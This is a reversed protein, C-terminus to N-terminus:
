GNYKVVQGNLLFFDGMNIQGADIAQEVEADNGFQPIENPRMGLAAIVELTRASLQSATRSTEVTGETPETVSEAGATPRARPLPSTQVGTNGTGGGAAEGTTGGEGMIDPMSPVSIGTVKSKAVRWAEGRTVTGDGDMDLGANARYQRRDKETGTSNYLVFSDPKNVAAPYHIATYIHGFDPNPVNSLYQSLHREVFAMQEARTMSSLEATSTGLGEATSEIFQILGTASSGPNKVSPDFTGGTEFAIAQMLDNPNLNLAASTNTVAVLFDTDEMVKPPVDLTGETNISNSPDLDSTTAGVLRGQAAQVSYMANAITTMDEPPQGTGDTLREWVRWFAPGSTERMQRGNDDVLAQIDGGYIEDVANLFKDAREDDGIARRISGRTVNFTNSRIDYDFPSGQRINRFQRELTMGTRTLARQTRQQIAAGLEPDQAMVTNLNKFFKEGFMTNMADESVYEGQAALHEIHDVGRVVISAWNERLDVNNALNQGHTNAVRLSDWGVQFIEQPSRSDPQGSEPILGDTRTPDRVADGDLATGDDNNLSRLASATESIDLIGFDLLMGADASLATLLMDENPFGAAKVSSYLNSLAQAEVNGPEVISRFTELLNTTADIREQVPAWADDSVNAPRTMSATRQSWALIANDADELSVEAGSQAAAAVVGFVTSSWEEIGAIYANATETTFTYDAQDLIAQRGQRVAVNSLAISQREEPTVDPHTVLTATFADRYDDSELLNQMQMEEDTQSFSDVGRGTISTATQEFWKDSVDGGAKTYETLLNMELRRAREMEGSRRAARIRKMGRIVASRLAPDESADISGGSTQGLSEIGASALDAIGKLFSPQEVPREVAVNFNTNPNLSSM